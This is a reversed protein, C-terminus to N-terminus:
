DDFGTFPKKGKKNASSSSSSPAGSSSSSSGDGISSIGGDMSGPMGGGGLGGMMDALASMDPMGGGGGGGMMAMARQMAAPDKMMQQAMAMMTPDKMLNALGATGGIQDMASKMQPNNMMGPPLGGAGGFGALPDASGSSATTTASTAAKSKRLKNRAQKLSDQSAKNDPELEVAKEYADVSEEYRGLFFNSLGLRSYAKVYNPQMALCLRCDDVAEQYKNLHCYAAARNSHYVHSNPGESSLELAKTYCRVAEEYDKANIAANGKFKLEEAEKELEETDTSTASSAAKQKFKNILKSQRKMYEVTDPETGDFYGKSKVVEVFPEFKPNSKAIGYATGYTQAKTSQLGSEFIDQLGVPYYSNKQFSEPTDELGFEEQMLSVITEINDANAGDNQQLGQLYEIISTLIQVKKVGSNTDM